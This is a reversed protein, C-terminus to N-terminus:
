LNGGELATDTISDFFSLSVMDFFRYVGEASVVPVLKLVQESGQWMAFFLIKGEFQSAAVTGNANRCAGLLLSGVTEFDNVGSIASSNATIAIKSNNVVSGYVMDESTTITKTAYKDGFRWSGGLYATVSATNDSSAVGYMYHQTSKERTFVVQIKTNQNCIIGTDVTQAGTFQIYDCRAYGAPIGDISGGGGAAKGQLAQQIQSILSDQESMETEITFTGTKAEGDAGHFTEGEFVTEPAVSDETLDILVEDGATTRRIVKNIYAM